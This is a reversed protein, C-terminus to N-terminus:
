ETTNDFIVTVTTGINEQSELVIEAHSSAAAHKVIALGLGTGGVSKSHSKDVRYFREFVRTQESKPIGIGTDTVSLCVKGDRSSINVDVRGNPKNYKVANDCLNYIMEDIIKPTGMVTANEGTVSLTINQKEAQPTLTKVVNKAASFLDIECKELASPNEDLESIKIIDSVLTILRQAEDYISASFDIVTDNPTDGSKMMEAFGSISTLPTKLEHSVNSTFERRLKERNVSETIDLIVIVAGLVREKECVPNAILSYVRGNQKIENEAHNGSLVTEIIDVFGRKRNLTLVSKGSSFNDIELLRTASKNYSLVNANGDIILLGESMNETILRFEEQKQAAVKVQKEITRKQASIKKLLPKIEEYAENGAPNDLDLENIPKIISKSVRHSIILSLILTVIIIISLPYVLKLFLIFLSEQTAAIRIIDGNSLRKAFYVTETGTTESYRTATGTGNKIADKIEQRDLHNGLIKGDSATDALVTGDASILTIRKNNSKLKQIYETGDKDVAQAIYEVENELESLLQSQSRNFLVVLTLLFSILLVFISTLFMANFIKKDM